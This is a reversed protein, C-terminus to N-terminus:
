FVTWVDPILSADFAPGAPDIVVGNTQGDDDGRGGDHLMVVLRSGVRNARTTGNRTLASWAGDALKHWINVPPAPPVHVVLEVLAGAPLAALAVFLVFALLRRLPVPCPLPRDEALLSNPQWLHHAPM